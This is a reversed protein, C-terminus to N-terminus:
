MQLKVDSKKEYLLLRTREYIIIYITCNVLGATANYIAQARVLLSIAHMADLTYKYQGNNRGLFIFCAAVM